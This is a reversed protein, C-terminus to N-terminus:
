CSGLALLGYFVYEVDGEGDLVNPLFSGNDEYHATIFPRADYRAKVGFHRLTFLAVATSLLDPVDAGENQIFGGSKDQMSMVYELKKTLMQKSLDKDSLLSASAANVTQAVAKSAYMGFFEKLQSRKGFHLLGTLFLGKRFLEDLLCCQRYTMCHLMDLRSYDISQLYKRREARLTKIGLTYCLLWGFMTYYLDEKGGRNLFACRGTMKSGVYRGVSNRVDDNLLLAGRETATLLEYDLPMKM